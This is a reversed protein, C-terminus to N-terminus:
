VSGKIGQLCHLNMSTTFIQVDASLEDPEENFRSTEMDCVPIDPFPMLSCGM